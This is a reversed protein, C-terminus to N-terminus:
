RGVRHARTTRIMRNILTLLRKRQTESLRVTTGNSSTLTVGSRFRSTRTM